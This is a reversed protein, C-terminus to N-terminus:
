LKVVLLKRYKSLNKTVIKSIQFSIKKKCTAIDPNMKKASPIYRLSNRMLSHDDVTKKDLIGWEQLHSIRLICMWVEGHRWFEKKDHNKYNSIFVKKARLLTKMLLVESAFLFVKQNVGFCISFVVMKWSWLKKKAHPLTLIYKKKKGFFMFIKKFVLLKSNNRWSLMLTTSKIFLYSKSSLASLECSWFFHKRYKSVNITLNKTM